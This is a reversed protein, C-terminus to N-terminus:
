DQPRAPSLTAPERMPNWQTVGTVDNERLAQLYSSLNSAKVSGHHCALTALDLAEVKDLAANLHPRSPFLGIKRYVDLMRDTEDRDTVAPGGGPSIFVDSSFLTRTTTDYALMSDWQHVYPTVLFRLRHHGLDLVSDEDAGLPPRIAFDPLNTAMGIPSGVAVAAPARQLFENLAGCEDGEFHPVVVYRVTRPDLVRSVARWTEGFARRFGTEVLTPQEDRIVFFSFTIPRGPLAVNIRFIDEAVEDVAATSM